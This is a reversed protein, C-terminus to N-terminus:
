ADNDGTLVKVRVGYENLTKIAERSSEKPPDLFALCGVFTMNSEDATSLAVGASLRKCAVGLVRMGKENLGRCQAIIRERLNDDLAETAGGYEANTSVSLM